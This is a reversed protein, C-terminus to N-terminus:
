KIFFYNELSIRLHESFSLYVLNLLVFVACMSVKNKIQIACILAASANLLGLIAATRFFGFQPLLWVPYLIGGIFGGLYDSFLIQNLSLGSLYKNLLPIELGILVGVCFVFFLLVWKPHMELAFTSYLLPIALIAVFSLTLELAIFNELRNNLYKSLYSGMGMSAMMLSIVLSYQFITAGFLFTAYSALILEYAIASFSAIFALVFVWRHQAANVQNKGVSTIMTSESTCYSKRRRFICKM